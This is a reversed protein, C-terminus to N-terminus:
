PEVPLAMRKFVAYCAIRHPLFLSIWGILYGPYILYEFGLFRDKASTMMFGVCITVLGLVSSVILGMRLIM